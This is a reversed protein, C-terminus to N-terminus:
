GANTATEIRIRHEVKVELDTCRIKANDVADLCLQDGDTALNIQLGKLGDAADKFNM